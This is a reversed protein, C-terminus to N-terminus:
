LENRNKNQGLESFVFSTIPPALLM